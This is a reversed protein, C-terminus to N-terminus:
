AKARQMPELLSKVEHKKSQSSATKSDKHFSGHSIAPSIGGAYLGKVDDSLDKSLKEAV